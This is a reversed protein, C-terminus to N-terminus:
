KERKGMFRKAPSKSNEQSLGCPSESFSDRPVTENTTFQRAGRDMPKTVKGGWGNNSVDQSTKM